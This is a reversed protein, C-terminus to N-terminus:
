HELEMKINPSIGFTVPTNAEANKPIDAQMWVTTPLDKIFKTGGLGKSDKAKIFAPYGYKDITENWFMGYLHINGYLGETIQEELLDEVLPTVTIEVYARYYDDSSKDSEVRYPTTSRHSDLFMPSYIGKFSGFDDKDTMIIRKFTVKATQNNLMFEKNRIRDFSHETGSENRSYSLSSLSMMNTGTKGVERLENLVQFDAAKKSEIEIYRQLLTAVEARTTTENIHVHKQPDGIMLGTGLMLSISPIKNKPINEKYTEVYPLLTGQLDDFADKYSSDKSTLGRSMWLALESRTINLNPAFTNSGNNNAEVFGLAYLNQISSYAWHTDPLDDFIVVSTTSPLQKMARDLMTAFEAKTVKGQPNFTGDKYGEVIGLEAARKISAEAWHGKIDSFSTIVPAPKVSEEQNEKGETNPESTGSPPVSDEGPYSPDSGNGPPTYNGEGSGLGPNTEGTSYNYGIYRMAEILDVTAQDVEGQSSKANAEVQQASKRANEFITWFRNKNNHDAIVDDISTFKNAYELVRRLEDKVAVLSILGDMSGRLNDAAATVLLQSAQMDYLVDEAAKKASLFKGWTENDYSRGQNVIEIARQVAITLQSKDVYVAETVGRIFKADAWVTHDSSNYNNGDKTILKVERAGKIPINLYYQNTKSHMLGSDYKQVDDVWVEFSASAVNTGKMAQDIGVYTELTDYDKGYVSYIVTSNAHAGLGKEYPFEYDENKLKIQTKSPNKDRQITEWGVDASIWDLDSLYYVDQVVSVNITKLTENGNGDSASLMVQYTGEKSTNVQNAKVSLSSSIDQGDVGVATVGKLPDYPKNLGITYRNNSRISPESTNKIIPDSLLSENLKGDYARVTYEYRKNPLVDTDVYTSVDGKLVKLLQGDRFLEYTSVAHKPENMQIKLTVEKNGTATLIPKVNPNSFAVGDDMRDNWFHVKKDMPPLHRTREKAVSSIPEKFYEFHTSVDIGLAESYAVVLRDHNSTLGKLVGDKDDRAIRSAKAYVDKDYFQELQYLIGLYFFPSGNHVKDLHYKNMSNVWFNDNTLRDTELYKDHMMMSFVNNTAEGRVFDRTEFQHGFEHMVGWGASTVANASAISVYFSHDRKPNSEPTGANYGTSTGGAWMYGSGRSYIRANFKGRPRFNESTEDELDFGAYKAYTYYMDDWTQMTKDVTINPTATIGKLAGEASTSLIVHDSTLEAINYFKGEPNGNKFVHDDYSVNTLYTKLYEVFAIPDTKGLTFVPYKTGGILRVRPAYEQDAPLAENNIYIASPSMDLPATITNLGPKLTYNRWANNYDGIQGFVLTPAVGSGADVYLQLTEGPSVYYGFLDFARLTYTLHTRNIEKITNGRQSATITRDSFAEPNNALIQADMLLTRYSEGTPYNAIESFIKNIKAPDQYAPTLKSYTKDTFMQEVQQGMLDPKYFTLESISAWNDHASVFEFQVRRIETAPFKITADVYSPGIFTGNKLLQFDEGQDTTSYYINYELPFGKPPSDQRVLYDLRDLTYPQDFTVSVKNKFTDSNPTNTEWHTSRNGDVARQIVSSGYHRANNTISTIATVPLRLIDDASMANVTARTIASAETNPQQTSTDAKVTGQSLPNAIMTAIVSSFLVKNAQKQRKLKEFKKHRQKRSQRTIM